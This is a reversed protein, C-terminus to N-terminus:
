KICTKKKLVLWNDDQFHGGKKIGTFTLPSVDMVVVAPGYKMIAVQATYSNSVSAVSHM